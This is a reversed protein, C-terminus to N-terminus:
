ENKEYWPHSTPLYSCLQIIFKECHAIAPNPHFANALTNWPNCTKVFDYFPTDYCSQKGTCDYIPCGRCGLNAFMECLKCNTDVLTANGYAINNWREISKELGDIQKNNM